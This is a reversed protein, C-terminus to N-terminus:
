IPNEGSNIESIGSEYIQIYRILEDVIEEPSELFEGSPKTWSLSNSPNTDLSLYYIPSAGPLSKIDSPMLTFSGFISFIAKYRKGHYSTQYARPWEGSDSKSELPFSENLFSILEETKKVKNEFSGTESM